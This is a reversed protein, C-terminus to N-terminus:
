ENFEIEVNLDNWGEGKKRKMFELVYDSGNKFFIIRLQEIALDSLFLAVTILFVTLYFTPSLHLIVVTGTVMSYTWWDSFWVYGIYVFLSCVIYFFCSVWTWWRTQVVLHCTVAAYLCTFSILSLSWIDTNQGNSKLINTEQTIYIPIIFVILSHIYGILNKLIYSNWTFITKKSGIYYLSPYLKRIQQGELQYNVDQEFTAKIVLPWSTYLLNFFSIYYDDYITQGSFGNLFAYFVHPATLVLNKYFFYLILEANRLYCLRGHHM